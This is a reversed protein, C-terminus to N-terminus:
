PRSHLNRLFQALLSAAAACGIAMPMKIGIEQAFAFPDSADRRVGSRDPAPLRRLQATFGIGQAHDRLVNRRQCSRQPVLGWAQNIEAKEATPSGM